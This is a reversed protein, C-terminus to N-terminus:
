YPTALFYITGKLRQSNQCIKQDVFKGNQHHWPCTLLGTLLGTSLGNPAEATKLTGEQSVEPFLNRSPCPM